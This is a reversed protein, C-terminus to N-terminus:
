PLLMSTLFLLSSVCFSPAYNIPQRIATLAYAANLTRINPHAVFTIQPV